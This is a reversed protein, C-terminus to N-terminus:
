IKVNSYFTGSQGNVQLELDYKGNKMTQVEFSRCAESDAPVLCGTQTIPLPLTGTAQYSVIPCDVDDSTFKQLM